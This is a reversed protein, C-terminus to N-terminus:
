RCKIYNDVIKILFTNLNTENKVSIQHNDINKENCYKEIEKVDICLSKLDIKNGLLIIDSNDKRTYKKIEAM